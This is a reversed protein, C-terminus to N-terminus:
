PQGATTTGGRVSAKAMQREILGGLAYVAAAGLISYVFPAEWVEAYVFEGLISIVMGTLLTAAATYGGARGFWLGGFFVVLVGAVGFSSSLQAMEFITEGGLALACAIAAAVLIFIRTIILQKADTLKPLLPFLINNTTLTSFSLLTSNVTSLIASVLAGIFLAFAWPPLMDRALTPLFADRHDMDSVLHAGTLAVIVPIVGVVLYIGAAGLCAKRALQANRMSLIRGVAEQMILSGLVPILWVDLRALFSEDPAAWRLQEPTIRAFSEQVGGGAAMVLVLLVGLGLILVIAQVFDTWIDSKMGGLFTYFGVLGGAFLISAAVPLHTVVSLIQGFAMLQAAAWIISTPLVIVTALMEIRRGYRDNFFDGITVYARQRLPVAVLLAMLIWCITYGFPDARGGALGEDAVAAASGMVTEAGFNTAFMSFMGLLLGVSRGAVVFDAESRVSRGAWWGIALQLGIYGLIALLLINVGAFEAM